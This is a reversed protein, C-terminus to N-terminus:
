SDTGSHKYLIKLTGQSFLSNWESPDAWELIEVYRFWYNIYKNTLNDDHFCDGIIRCLALPRSGERVMIIDGVTVGNREGKFYLCQIDNWEGTGIVPREEKLMQSSDIITGGKGEPLFMQIHWYRDRM